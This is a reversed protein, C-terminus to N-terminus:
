KKLNKKKNPVCSKCSKVEFKEDDSDTAIKSKIASKALSKKKCVSKLISRNTLPNMPKVMSSVAAYELVKLNEHFM